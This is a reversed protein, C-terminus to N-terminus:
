KAWKLSTCNALNAANQHRWLNAIVNRSFWLPGNCILTQAWTPLFRESYIWWITIVTTALTLLCQILMLTGSPSLFCFSWSVTVSVFIITSFQLSPLPFLSIGPFYLSTSAITCFLPYRQTPVFIGQAFIFIKFTAWRVSQISSQFTFKRHTM